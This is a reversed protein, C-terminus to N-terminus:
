LLIRSILRDDVALVILPRTKEVDPHTNDRPLRDAAGLASLHRPSGSSLQRARGVALREWQGLNNEAVLREMLALRDRMAQQRGQKFDAFVLGDLASFRDEASLSESAAAQELFGVIQPMFGMEHFIEDTAMDVLPKVNGLAMFLRLLLNVKQFSWDRPLSAILLDRMASQAKRMTANGLAEVHARGLLRIADHIKFRDTGFVQIAGASRLKRLLRAVAQDDIEFTAKLVQAADAQAFPVDSLSLASIADRESETYDGFVRALILEQATEVVHTQDELEQSFRSVSGDYHQAAIQLASQVYLPMGATLTLLREYAAYDGHCGLAAGEAAITENSWGRLPEAHVQLAAEMLAVAPGPQALLVFRLNHSHEILSNLDAAPVRHANDIVVTVVMNAEALQKGIAFLIEPGSAGPLLIEGLKGGPKGFLRAALDRSVTAALAAGPVVRVDFYAV